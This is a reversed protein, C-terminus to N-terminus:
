IKIEAGGASEEKFSAAINHVMRPLYELPLFSHTAELQCGVMLSKTLCGM